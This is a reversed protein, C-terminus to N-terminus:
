PRVSCAQLCEKETMFNNKNGRCGGYIFVECKRTKPNFFFRPISSKCPGTEPPLRCIDRKEDKKALSLGAWLLLLGLLFLKSAMTGKQSALM